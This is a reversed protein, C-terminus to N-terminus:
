RGLFAEEFSPDGLLEDSAGSRVIRGQRMVYGRDAHRLATQVDQEVVFLTTGQDRISGLAEMLRDVLVPALGLSLEDVLLLAPGSMLARGIACMQQEGGSLTGVVQRRRDPLASFLDFVRDLREAVTAPSRTVHAGATLNELVTMGAFLRRGEPVLSMGAEVREHAPTEELDRGRFRISGDTCHLTGAVTRMLTTKGAGAPGLLTVWEGEDVDLDVGWLAQLDGYGARVDRVELLSVREGM